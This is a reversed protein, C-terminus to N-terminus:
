SHHSSNLRTSKRDLIRERYADPVGPGRDCVSLEAGPAVAHVQVEVEGGGYRRANELLNRLARRLLREDGRVEVTEGEAGADVRAAEEAALALLEVPEHAIGGAGADLRSALLVEEVLADLEAIDTHVEDLLRQRRDPAVDDLMAVAMKLRALPSRLEHSANALLSRHSMLLAEIRAAARNFISALSAVEDRGDESVRWNPAGGGAVRGRGGRRVAGAAAGGPRSRGVAVAGDLRAAAGPGPRAAARRPRRGDDARAGPRAAASAPDVAHPRRGPPDLVRAIRTRRAGVRPARLLRLRRHAPGRRRGAGAAAAPPRVM